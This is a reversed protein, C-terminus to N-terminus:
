HMWLSAMCIISWKSAPVLVLFVGAIRMDSRQKM